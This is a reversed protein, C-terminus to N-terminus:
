TAKRAVLEERIAARIMEVLEESAPPTAATTSAAPATPATEIPGIWDSLRHTAAARTQPCGLRLLDGPPVRLLRALSTLHEVQLDLKGNLVERLPKLERSM